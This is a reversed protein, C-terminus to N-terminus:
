FNRLTQEHNPVPVTTWRQFEPDRCQVVMDEVDGAIPLRLVLDPGGTLEPASPLQVRKGSTM